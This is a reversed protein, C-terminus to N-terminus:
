RSLTTEKFSGDAHADARYARAFAAGLARRSEGTYITFRWPETEGHSPEWDAARLVREILPRPVADPSLRTMGLSRQHTIAAELADVTEAPMGAPDGAQNWQRSDSM